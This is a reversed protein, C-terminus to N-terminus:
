RGPVPRNTDTPAPTGGPVRFKVPFLVTLPVARRGLKAPRFRLVPAGEMAAADLLPQGSSEAVRLSETVVAGTSDVHLRLTVDGEVRQTYLGMPYRFPVADGLLQPLSDAIMRPPQAECALLVVVLGALGFRM